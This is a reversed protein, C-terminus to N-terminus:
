GNPHDALWRWTEEALDAFFREREERSPQDAFFRERADAQDALWREYEDRDFGALGSM